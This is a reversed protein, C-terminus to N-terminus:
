NSNNNNNNHAWPSTPNKPNKPIPDSSQCLIKHHKDQVCDRIFGQMIEPYDQVTQDLYKQFNDPHVLHHALNYHLPAVMVLLTGSLEAPHIDHSEAQDMVLNMEAVMHQMIDNHWSDKNWNEIPSKKDTM